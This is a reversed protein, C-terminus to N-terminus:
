SIIERVNLNKQDSESVTTWGMDPVSEVMAGDIRSVCCMGGRLILSAIHWSDRWDAFRGNKLCKLLTIRSDFPM